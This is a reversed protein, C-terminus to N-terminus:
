PRLPMLSAGEVFYGENSNQDGKRQARMLRYQAEQMKVQAEQQKEIAARQEFSLYPSIADLLRQNRKKMYELQREMNSSDFFNNTAIRAAVPAGRAVATLENAEIQNAQALAKLMPKSLDDSLPMGSSALTSRMNDLEYRMGMTSQYEKWTQLKDQGFRAALEAENKRQNEAVQEAIKRHREQMASQDTPQSSYM